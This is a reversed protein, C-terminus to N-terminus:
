TECKNWEEDSFYSLSNWCVSNLYYGKKIVTRMWGWNVDENKEWESNADKEGYIKVNFKQLDM